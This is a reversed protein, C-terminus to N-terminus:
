FPSLVELTPDVSHTPGLILNKWFQKRPLELIKFILVLVAVLNRMLSNFILLYNTSVGIYSCVTHQLRHVLVTSSSGFGFRLLLNFLDGELM